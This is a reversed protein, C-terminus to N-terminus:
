QRLTLLIGKLAALDICGYLSAIRPSLDISETLHRLDPRHDCRADSVVAVPILASAAGARQRSAGLIKRRRKHL